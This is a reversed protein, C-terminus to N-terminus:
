PQPPPASLDSLVNELIGDFEDETFARVTRTRVNGRSGIFLVWKAVAEADPADLIMLIDSDGATYFIQTVALGFANAVEGRAM